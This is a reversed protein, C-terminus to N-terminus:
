PVQQPIPTAPPSPSTTPTNSTPKSPGATGESSTRSASSEGEFGYQDGIAKALRNFAEMDPDRAVYLAWEEPKVLAKIFGVVRDEEWAEVAKVPLKKADSPITFTLGEHTVEAM